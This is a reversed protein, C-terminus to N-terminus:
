RLEVRRDSRVLSDSHTLLPVLLRLLGHERVVAVNEAAM